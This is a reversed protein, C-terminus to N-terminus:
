ACRTIHCDVGNLCGDSVALPNQPALPGGCPPHAGRSHSSHRALGDTRVAAPAALQWNGTQLQWDDM